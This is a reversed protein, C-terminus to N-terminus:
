EGDQKGVVDEMPVGVAITVVAVAWVRGFERAPEAM